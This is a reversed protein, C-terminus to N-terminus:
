ASLGASVLDAARQATQEPSSGAHRQAVARAVQAFSPEHLLRQLVPGPAPVRASPELALGWGCAQVRRAAMAQELQTPLVLVPKGALAAAALTGQGGHCVVLDAGAM